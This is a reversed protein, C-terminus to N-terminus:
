ATTWPATMKVGVNETLQCSARKDSRLCNDFRDDNQCGHTRNTSLKGEQRVELLHRATMMYTGDITALKGEKEARFYIEIPSFNFVLPSDEHRMCSSDITVLRGVRKVEMWVGFHTEQCRHHRVGIIDSVRSQHMVNNCDHTFTTLRNATEM